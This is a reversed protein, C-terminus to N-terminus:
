QRHCILTRRGAFRLDANVQPQLIRRHRTIGIAQSGPLEIPAQFLLDAPSLASAMLGLGLAQMACGCATASVRQMPKGSPDDITVLVDDNPIDTAQTM